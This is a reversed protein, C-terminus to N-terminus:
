HGYIRALEENVEKPGFPKQKDRYTTMGKTTMVNLYKFKPIGLKERVEENSLNLKERELKLKKLREIIPVCEEPSFFRFGNEMKEYPLFSERVWWDVASTNVKVMEALEGISVLEKTQIKKM